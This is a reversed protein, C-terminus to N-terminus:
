KGLIRKVAQAVKEGEAKGKLIAMAGQMVKGFDAMSTAGAERISGEVIRELDEDSMQPPLYNQLIEIEQEEKLALEERNGRRFEGAADKRQRVERRMIEIIEEDSLGIDKKRLEIARNTMASLVLRLTSVLLTEGSKLARRLDEEIKEKLM